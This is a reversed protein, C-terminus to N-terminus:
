SSGKVSLENKVNGTGAVELAKAEIAQREEDSRVPGKLTVTGNQVIVKVNHAYTSLAKDTVIARRIRKALDRDTSTEKQQDATPSDKQRDQRNVKTNDPETQSAYGRPVSGSALILGFTFTLLTRYM